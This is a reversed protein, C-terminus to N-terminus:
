VLDKIEYYSADNQPIYSGNADGYCQGKFNYVVDNDSITIYYDDDFLWEGNAFYESSKPNGIKKKILTIDTSTLYNSGNVDGSRLKLGSLLYGPLAGICNKYYTIDISTAGGWNLKTYANIKYAGNPISDFKYHGTLDTVTTNISSLDDSYLVVESNCIPTNKSNNYNLTGSVSGFSSNTQSFTSFPFLIVSCFVIFFPLYNKM